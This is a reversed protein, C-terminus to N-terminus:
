AREKRAFEILEDVHEHIKRAAAAFADMDEKPGLLNRAQMKVSHNHETVPFHLNEYDIVRGYDRFIFDLKNDRLAQTSFLRNKYLGGDVGPQLAVGEANMAKCFLERPAGGFEAPDYHFVAFFYVQSTVRPDRKVHRLGRFGKLLTELHRINAERHAIQEDLRELQGLLVAAQFQSMRHNSGLIVHEYFDSGEMPRGQNQISWARAFLSDDNCSLFGGEGCTMLKSTWFSFCGFHGIAGSKQGRWEAGHSRACDEIVILNHKKAIAMIRDMDCLYGDLHVAVIARTRATIAEEIRDPSICLTEPDLDVFVPIANAALACTASAVFSHAPTIVEDGPDMLLAKCAIELAATGNTITLGHKAGLYDRFRNEFMELKNAQAYEAKQQPSTFFSWMPADLVEQLHRQESEGYVPWERRREGTPRTRPGGAIALHQTPM